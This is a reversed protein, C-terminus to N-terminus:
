GDGLHRMILIEAERAISKAAEWFGRNSEGIAAQSLKGRSLEALDWAGWAEGSLDDASERV